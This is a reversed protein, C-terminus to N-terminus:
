NYGLIAVKAVDPRDNSNEMLVQTPRNPRKVWARGDIPVFREISEASTGPKGYHDSLPFTNMM